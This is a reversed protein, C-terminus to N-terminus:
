RRSASRILDNMSIPVESGRAGQGADGAPRGNKGLLAFLTTADAELEEKTSGTLRAALAAVEAPKTGEPAKALAVQLKLNLSAESDARQKERDREEQLKQAETKNQADLQDFKSAKDKLSDYDQYKARERSLREGIIRDLEEQSSPPTYGGSNQQGGQDSNQGANGGTNGGDEPM